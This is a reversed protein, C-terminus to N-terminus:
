FDNINNKNDNKKNEYNIINDNNDNNEYLEGTINSDSHQQESNIEAYNNLITRQM